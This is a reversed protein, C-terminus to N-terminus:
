GNFRCQLQNLLEHVRAELENKNGNNRIVYDAVAEKQALPMQSAIRKEVEDESLDSDRALLRRRQIEASATVVVLASMSKYGGTEVLLAAEYFVIEHGNNSFEIFKKQSAAAIAPHTISELKKRASDDGFVLRGLERRDLEGEETLLAEGFFDIIQTLAPQGRSVVERAVQDADVVPYDSNSLISAVTSKGCAIGGSLGIIRLM